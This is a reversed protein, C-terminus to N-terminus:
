EYQENFNYKLKHIKWVYEEFISSPIKKEKIYEGYNQSTAIDFIQGNSFLIMAYSQLTTIDECYDVGNKGIYMSQFTKSEPFNTEIYFLIRTQNFESPLFKIGIHEINIEIRMANRKGYNKVKKYIEKPDFFKEGDILFYKWKM